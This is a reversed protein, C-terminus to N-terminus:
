ENALGRQQLKKSFFEKEMKKFTEYKVYTGFIEVQKKTLEAEQESLKALSAKLKDKKLYPIESQVTQVFALSNSLVEITKEEPVKWKDVFYFTIQKTWEKQNNENTFAELFQDTYITANLYDDYYRAVKVAVFRNQENQVQRQEAIEQLEIQRHDTKLRDLVVQGVFYVAIATAFGMALHNRKERSNRQKWQIIQQDGSQQPSDANAGAKIQIVSNTLEVIKEFHYKNDSKKLYLEIKSSIEQALDLSLKKIEYTHSDRISQLEKLEQLKFSEFKEKEIATLKKYEAELLTKHHAKETALKEDLGELERESVEIRALLDKSKQSLQEFNLRSQKEQEVITNRKATFNDLHEQMSTCEQKLQAEKKSLLDMQNTLNNKGLSLEDIKEELELKLNKLKLYSDQIQQYDQSIQDFASKLDSLKKQHEAAENRTQNQFKHYKENIEEEAASIMEAREQIMKNKLNELEMEMRRQSEAEINEKHLHLETHMKQSAETRLLEIEEQAKRKRSEIVKETKQRLKELQRQTEKFLEALEKQQLGVNRQHTLREEVLREQVSEDLDRLIKEKIQLQEIKFKELELDKKNVAEAEVSERVENRFAHVEGEATDWLEKVERTAKIKQQVIYNETENRIRETEKKTQELLADIKIRYEEYSAQALQVSEKKTEALIKNKQLDTNKLISHKLFEAEKIIAQSYDQANRFKPMSLGAKKFDFKLESESIPIGSIEVKISESQVEQEQKEQQNFLNEEVEVLEIKLQATTGNFGIADQAHIQYLALPDLKKGNLFTGHSSGLDQVVMGRMEDLFIKLHQRSINPEDIQLSASPLRGVTCESESCYHTKSQGNHSLIVKYVKKTDAM